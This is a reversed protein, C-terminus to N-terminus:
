VAFICCLCVSLHKASHLNSCEPGITIEPHDELVCQLVRLLLGVRWPREIWIDTYNAYLIYRNLAEQGGGSAM